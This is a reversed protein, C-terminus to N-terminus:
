TPPIWTVGFKVATSNDNVNYQGGIGVQFDRGLTFPVAFSANPTLGGTLGLEVGGVSKWSLKPTLEGAELGVSATVADGDKVTKLGLAASGSFIGNTWKGNVAVFNGESMTYKFGLTSISPTEPTVYLPTSGSLEFQEWKLKTSVSLKATPVSPTSGPVPFATLNASVTFEALVGPTLKVTLPIVTLGTSGDGSRTVRAGKVPDFELKASVGDPPVSLNFTRENDDKQEYRITGNGNVKIPQPAPKAPEQKVPLGTQKPPISPPQPTQAKVKKLNAEGLMKRIQEDITPTHTKPPKPLRNPTARRESPLQLSRQESPSRGNSVRQVM